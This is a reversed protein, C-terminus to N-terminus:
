NGVENIRINGSATEIDLRGEGAGVVGKLAKRSIADLKIELNGEISGTNTNVELVFGAGRKAPFSVTVSGSSSKIVHEAPGDFALEANIDGSTASANVAGAADAIRIDGAHTSATVAGRCGKMLLDGSSLEATVSGGVDYIEVDGSTGRVSASGAVKKVVADGSSMVLEFDGGVGDADLDGSSLEVTVRGGITRLLADGSSGAIDVDGEISTIQVDGSTASVKADFVVPVEVTCDIYARDKIRSLFSWFSGADFTKDPQNLVVSIEEGDTEITYTLHEMWRRATEADAARVFKAFRIVVDRADKRGVIITKGRANKVSIKSEREVKVTRTEEEQLTKSGARVNGASWLVALFALLAPLAPSGRRWLAPAYTLTRRMTM